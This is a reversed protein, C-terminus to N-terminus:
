SGARWGAAVKELLAEYRDVMKDLSLEAEVWRRGAVGMASMRDRDELLAAVERAMQAADGQRVLIGTEGPLFTERVGGTDMGVVPRACAQAELFCLPFTEVDDSVLVVLDVGSYAGPMDTVPGTVVLRGACVSRRALERDAELRPGGGIMCGWVDHGAANLDEVLRVFRDHRKEKRHAAVLGLVLAGPPIGARERFRAGAAMDERFENTDVGNNIVVMAGPRNGAALLTPVQAHACAVTARTFSGLLRNALRVRDRQRVMSSHEATVCPRGLLLAALRGWLTAVFEVTVVVDPDATHCLRVLDFLVRADYWRMRGLARVEVGSEALHDDYAEVNKHVALVCTHGRLALGSALQVVQRELGGRELRAVDIMVKV